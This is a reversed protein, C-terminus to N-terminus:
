EIGLLTYWETRDEKPFLLDIGKKINSSFIWRRKKEYINESSITTISEIEEVLESTVRPIETYDTMKVNPNKQTIEQITDEFITKVPEIFKRTTMVSDHITFIPIDNNTRFIQRSVSDLVLFSEVRQLLISFESGGFIQIFREIFEILGSYVSKVLQIILDDERHYENNHFLLIMIKGKVDGRTIKGFKVPNRIRGESVIHGYFDEQFDFNSFSLLSEYNEDDLFVCLVKNNNGPKNSPSMGGVNDIQIKLKPYITSLNYSGLQNDTLFDEGLITSLIFPQSTGLDVEGISDNNILLFPRLTKPFRTLLSNLRNNSLSTSPNFEGNNISGVMSLLYGLHNFLSKLNETKLKKKRQFKPLLEVGLERIFEGVETRTTITHKEFQDYLYQHNVNRDEVEFEEFEERRGEKLLKTIKNEIRKSYEVRKLIGTNHKETLRYGTSYHGSRHNKTEIIGEDLLIKKIRSSRSFREEKGIIGSLTKDNIIEYGKNNHLSHNGKTIRSLFYDMGEKLRNKQTNSLGEIQVLRETDIHSPILGFM